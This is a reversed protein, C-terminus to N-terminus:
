KEFLTVSEAASLFVCDPPLDFDEAFALCLFSLVFPAPEVYAKKM